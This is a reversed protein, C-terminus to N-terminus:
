TLYNRQQINWKGMFSCTFLSGFIDIINKREGRWSHQPNFGPKIHAPCASQWQALVGVGLINSRNLPSECARQLLTFSGLYGCDTGPTLSCSASESHNNNVLVLHQRM